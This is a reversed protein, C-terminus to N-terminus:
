HNLQGIDLGGDVASVAGSRTGISEKSTESKMEVGGRLQRPVIRPDVDSSHYPTPALPTPTDITYASLPVAADEQIFSPSLLDEIRISRPSPASLYPSTQSADLVLPSFSSTSRRPRTTHDHSIPGSSSGPRSSSPGPDSFRHPLVFGDSTRDVELSGRHRSEPVAVEDQVSTVKRRKTGRGVHEDATGQEERERRQGRSDEMLRPDTKLKVLEAELGHRQLLDELRAVYQDLGDERRLVEEHQQSLLKHKSELTEITSELTSVHNARRV